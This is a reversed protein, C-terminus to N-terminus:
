TIEPPSNSLENHQVTEVIADLKPRVAMFQDGSGADAGEFFDFEYDSTVKEKEIVKDPKRTFVKKLLRKTNTKSNM